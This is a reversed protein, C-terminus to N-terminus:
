STTVDCSSQTLYSVTIVSDAEVWSSHRSNITSSCATNFNDGLWGTIPNCWIGYFYQVVQLTLCALCNIFLPHTPHQWIVDSTHSGPSTILVCMFNLRHMMKNQYISETLQIYKVNLRYGSLMITSSIGAPIGLLHCFVCCLKFIFSRNHIFQYEVPLM